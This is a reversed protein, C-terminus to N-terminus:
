AIQMNKIKEFGLLLIIIGAWVAWFVLFVNPERIIFLNFTTHLTIACVIGVGLSVSKEFKSKYFSMALFLGITASSMIHLLSAGVFRLNGTIITGVFDANQVLNVLFFTNEMAVFGLASIILYIMNDVPEDNAKNRLAIVYVTGFKFLEELAALLAFVFMNPSSAGVDCTLHGCVFRQLPLVLLVAVMGGLFSLTIMKHSEPHRDEKLWFWLWLLAPILGLLFSLIYPYHKIFTLMNTASSYSHNHGVLHAM